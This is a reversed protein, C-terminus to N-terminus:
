HVTPPRQRLIAAAKRLAEILEPSLPRPATM